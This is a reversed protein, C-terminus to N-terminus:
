EVTLIQFINTLVNVALYNYQAISCLSCCIYLTYWLNSNLQNHVHIGPVQQEIVNDHEIPSEVLKYSICAYM